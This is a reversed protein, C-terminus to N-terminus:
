NIKGQKWLKCINTNFWKSLQKGISGDFAFIHVLEGNIDREGQLHRDIKFDYVVGYNSTWEGQVLLEVNGSDNIQIYADSWLGTKTQALITKM